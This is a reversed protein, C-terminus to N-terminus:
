FCTAEGRQAGKKIESTPLFHPLTYLTGFTLGPVYNRSWRATTERVEQARGRGQDTYVAWHARSRSLGRTRAM